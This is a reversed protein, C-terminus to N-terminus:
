SRKAYDILFMVLGVLFAVWSGGAWLGFILHLVVNKVGGGEKTFAVFNIILLLLAVIGSAAAYGM